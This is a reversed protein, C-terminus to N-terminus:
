CALFLLAYLLYNDFITVVNEVDVHDTFLFYAYSPVMNLRSISMSDNM